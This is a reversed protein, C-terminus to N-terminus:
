TDNGSQCTAEKSELRRHLFVAGVALAAACVAVIGEVLWVNTLMGSQMLTPACDVLAHLLIALPFLWLKRPRYVSYYVVVSLSIQVVLALMREVGSLFLIAPPADAIAQAQTLVAPGYMAGLTQAGLTVFLAALALNSIMTTGGVLAAEIGGHGIGHKLAVGFGTRRKKLIHFSVFRATEEFVGAAFAGYLMYLFPRQRLAIDGTELDPRLVFWHLVQELAIAFVVFGAAGLLAPLVGKGYRKRVVFFLAIPVGVSLIASVAMAAFSITSVM